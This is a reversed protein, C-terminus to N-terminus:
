GIPKQGAALRRCRPPRDVRVRDHGAKAEPHTSARRRVGLPAAIPEQTVPRTPLCLLGGRETGVGGDSDFARCLAPSITAAALRPASRIASSSRSASTCRAASALARDKDSIALAYRSLTLRRRDHRLMSLRVRQWMMGFSPSLGM